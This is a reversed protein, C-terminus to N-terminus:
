QPAGTLHSTASELDAALAPLADLYQMVTTTFADNDDGALMHTADPLQIHSAHPVLQLFENITTKSLMDSRGGSILLVPCRISRAADAIAQQHVEAGRGLDALLRPDWHWHLRGDAAERLISRLAQESKRPRQPLYRAIEDAAEAYSAFGQPYAGMFDLIRQAGAPEWRPTIDVLVMAAFLGPWRAQAIMGFLGGMSAAVLVPTRPLQGSVAILDDVFQDPDYPQGDANRISQGHGRADYALSPHGHAALQRACNAWSHRTQGFGHAFLVPTRVGPHVDM